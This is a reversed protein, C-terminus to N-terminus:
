GILAEESFTAGLHVVIEKGIRFYNLMPMRKLVQITHLGDM